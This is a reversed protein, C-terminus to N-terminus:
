VPPALHPNVYYSVRAVVTVLFRHAVAAEEEEIRHRHLRGEPAGESNPVLGFAKERAGRVEAQDLKELSAASQDLM